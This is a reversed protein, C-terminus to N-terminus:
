GRLRNLGAKARQDLSNKYEHEGMNLLLTFLREAEKKNGRKEYIYASQLAARAAFYETAHIGKEITKKYYELALDQQDLDDYVRAFRYICELQEAETQLSTPNIKVLIKLADEQYGGDNLLRAKLLDKQPFKEHKAFHSAQKDADSEQKGLQLIKEKYLNAQKMNQQLYFCLAINMCADRLYFHGKSTQLFDEFDQIASYDLRRMKATGLEYALMPFQMYEKSRNRQMLVKEAIAAKKNNLALNAGMFCYLWNNKTDLQLTQMLRYAGDVDNELYNKLYIVYLVSEEYFPNSPHNSAKLVQLGHKMNGHLGLLNSIWKYGKPITSILAEQAGIQMDNPLFTPFKRKNEKLLLHSKRFDWAAGWYDTYKIQILSWQLHLMAKSYLYYPSEQNASQLIALRKEKLPKRQKYEKENENFLLEFYDEYNILILPLLNKPNQQLENRLISKATTLKLRMLAHYAEQCNKSMELKQAWCPLTLSAFLIALGFCSLRLYLKM